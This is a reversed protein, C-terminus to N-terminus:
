NTFIENYNDQISRWFMRKRMKNIDHVLTRYKQHEGGLKAPSYSFAFLVEKNSTTRESTM